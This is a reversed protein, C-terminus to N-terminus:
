LAEPGPTEQWHWVLGGSGCVDCPGSSDATIPDHFGREPTLWLSLGCQWCAVGRRDYMFGRDLLRRRHQACGCCLDRLQGSIQAGCRLCPHWINAARRAERARARGELYEGARRLLRGLSLTLM